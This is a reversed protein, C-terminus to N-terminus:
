IRTLFVSHITKESVYVIIRHINYLYSTALRSLTLSLSCQHKSKRVIRYIRSYHSCRFTEPYSIKIYRFSPGRQIKILWNWLLDDLKHFSSARYAKKRTSSFDDHVLYLQVVYEISAEFYFIASIRQIVVDHANHIGQLQRFIIFM